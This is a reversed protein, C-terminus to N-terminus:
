AAAKRRQRAKELERLQDLTIDPFAELIEPWAERPFVDRHKWVRVAGPTRGVKAAVATPGGKDDIIQAATDSM